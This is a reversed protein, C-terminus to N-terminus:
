EEVCRLGAITGEEDAVTWVVEAVREPRIFRALPDHLALPTLRLRQGPFLPHGTFIRLGEEAADTAVGTPNGWVYGEREEGGLFSLCLPINCDYRAGGRKESFRVVLREVVRNLDFINMPKEVFRVAAAPDDQGSCRAIEGDPVTSKEGGRCVRRFEEVAPSGEGDLFVPDYVVLDYRGERLRELAELSSSVVGVPIKMASFRKRIAWAILDDEGVILINKGTM